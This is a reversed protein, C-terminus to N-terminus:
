VQNRTHALQPRHQSSQGDSSPTELVHAWALGLLVWVAGTVQLNSLTNAFLLGSFYTALVGTLARDLRKRTNLRVFVVVISAFLALAPLGAEASLRLYDNHTNIVIGVDGDNAAYEPFAGYGIGTLPHRLSTNWAAELVNRRVNSYLNLEQASRGKLATTSITHPADPAFTVVVLIATAAIVQVRRPRGVLAIIFVGVVAGVLAGRSRTALLAFAQLGASSVWLWRSWRAPGSLCLAVSASLATALLLGVYNPNLDIVTLRETGHPPTAIAAVAVGVGTLANVKLARWTGTRVSIVVACLLLGHLLTVFDSSASGSHHLSWMFALWVALLTIPGHARRFLQWRGRILGFLWSAALAGVVISALPASPLAPLRPFTLAPIAVLALSQPSFLAWVALAAVVFLAIVIPRRTLGVGICAGGMAAFTSPWVRGLRVTGAPHVELLTAMTV